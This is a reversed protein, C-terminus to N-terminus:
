LIELTNGDKMYLCGNLTLNTIYLDKHNFKRSRSVKYLNRHSGKRGLTVVESDTRDFEFSELYLLEDDALSNRYMLSKPTIPKFTIYPIGINYGEPRAYNYIKYGTLQNNDSYVDFAAFGEGVYKPTEEGLESWLDFEELYKKFLKSYMINGTLGIQNAYSYISKNFPDKCFKWRLTNIGDVPKSDILNISYDNNNILEKTFIYFYQEPNSDLKLLIFNSGIFYYDHEYPIILKTSEGFETFKDLNDQYIQDLNLETVSSNTYFYFVNSITSKAAVITNEDIELIDILSHTQENWGNLYIKDTGSYKQNDQDSQLWSTNGSYHYLLNDTHNLEILNKTYLKKGYTINFLQSKKIANRGKNLMSLHAIKNQTDVIHQSYDFKILPIIEQITVSFNLLLRITKIHYAEINISQDLITFGIPNRLFDYYIIHNIRNPNWSSTDTFLYNEEDRTMIYKSEFNNITYNPLNSRSLNTDSWILIALPSNILDQTSGIFYTRM